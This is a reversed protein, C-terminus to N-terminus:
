EQEEGAGAHSEGPSEGHSEGRKPLAELPERALFLRVLYFATAAVGTALGAAVLAAGLNERAGPETRRYFKPM